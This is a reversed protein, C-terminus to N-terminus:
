HHEMATGINIGTDAHVEWSRRNKPKVHPTVVCGLPAFPCNIYNHQGHVHAYMSVKPAVNSQRLLNVTLEVPQVLHCWLSLPFINDVGRLISVFHNKFTQIAREAINCRHCDLPVLKHTMGNKAICGKFAASCENDLHHHKLRLTLLKIRDVIKQYAMIMKGGTQNKTLECFIYNADLHIGVMIYCYGWQSTILFANTQDIHVTDLLKYVVVFIDYHKKITPLPPNDTGPEVKITVPASVKTM